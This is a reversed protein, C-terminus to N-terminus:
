NEKIKHRLYDQVKPWIENTTSGEFTTLVNRESYYAVLPRTHREYVELRHRVTEPKDDDRQVLIEGTIDDVGPVRPSNFGTNYVRGSALHVWRGKVREIIIGHPVALNLVVNVPYAAHLSNAQLLLYLPTRQIYM